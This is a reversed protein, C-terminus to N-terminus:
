NRKFSFEGLLVLAIVAPLDQPTQLDRTKNIFILIVGFIALYYHNRYYHYNKKTKATDNTEVKQM